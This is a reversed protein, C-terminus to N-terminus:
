HRWRGETTHANKLPAPTQGADLTRIWTSSFGLSKPDRAKEVRKPAAVQESCDPTTLARLALSPNITAGPRQDTRGQAKSM